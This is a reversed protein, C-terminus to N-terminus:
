PRSQPGLHSRSHRGSRGQRVRRIRRLVPRRRLHGYRAVRVRLRGQDAPPQDRHPRRVPVRAAPVQLPGEHVLPVADLRRLLLVGQRGRRPEGRQEHPRVDAGQSHSRAREVAGACLLAATWRGLYRRPWGRGVPLGAFPVPRALLLELRQRGPQLGRAGHGVAARQPLAGVEELPHRVGPRRQLRKQEVVDIFRAPESPKPSPSRHNSM